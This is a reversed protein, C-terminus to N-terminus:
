EFILNTIPQSKELKKPNFNNKWIRKDDELDVYKNIDIKENFKIKRRFTEKFKSFKTYNYKQTKIIDYFDDYSNINMLGKIKFIDNKKTKLYYFKPKVIIGKKIDYEKKLEGLKNGTKLKAKTIISDTDCYYVIQNKNYVNEFHKYLELRAFSTIYLSLIPNIFKPYKICDLDTVYFMKFDVYHEIDNIKKVIREDIGEVKYRLPIDNYYCIKNTFFVESLKKRHEPNDKFLIEMMELRQAFKGYLSNLLIKYIIEVISNNNKFKMRENYLDTVFNKFPNFNKTYYISRIPIIHYGLELAKRLEAHSHYANFLGNAFILKREARYPLLPIFLKKNDLPTEIRCYSIGDYKKILSLDPNNTVKMYNPNPFEYKQMVYPYLSNIDYLYCNKIEGRYFAETRGGYYAKFMELIYKKDPQRIWTKLYKNTFLSKSTSAVTYKINAGINNFNNQLFEGFKYTIFSDRINYKELEEYQKKTKPLKGLFKPQPLKEIGMIKGLNKVGFRLFNLTDLFTLSSNNPYKYKVSIFNSGRLMITFNKLTDYTSFLALFDFGLNTAFLISSRLVKGKLIFDQMEKKNWFVYKENNGVVSGMVFENYKGYTEIDFAYIKKKVLKENTPKMYFRKM